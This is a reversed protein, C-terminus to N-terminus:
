IIGRPEAEPNGIEGDGNLLPSPHPVIIFIRKEIM